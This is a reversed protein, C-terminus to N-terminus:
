RRSSTTIGLDGDPLWTSVAEQWEIYRHLGFSSVSIRTSINAFSLWCLSAAVGGVGSAIAAYWLNLSSSILDPTTTPAPRSVGLACPLRTRNSPLFRVTMSPGHASVLSSTAPYQSHCTRESSSAM